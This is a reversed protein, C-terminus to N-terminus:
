SCFRPRSSRVQPRMLSTTSLSTTPPRSSRAIYRPRRSRLSISRAAEGPELRAQSRSLARGDGSIAVELTDPHSSFNAITLRARLTSAGFSERRLVFSGIAYNPIPGGVGIAHLRPPLPTALPNEGAFIVRAFHAGSASVSRERWRGQIM